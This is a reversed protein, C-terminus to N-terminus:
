TVRRIARSKMDLRANRDAEHEEERDEQTKKAGGTIGHADLRRSRAQGTDPEDREM